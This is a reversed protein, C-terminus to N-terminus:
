VAEAAAEPSPAEPSPTEAHVLVLTRHDRRIWRAAVRQLDDVTVARLAELRAFAGTPDGLVADYFGLQEARGGVTELGRLFALEMRSVSRDREDVTIPHTLLADLGRDLADLLTEASVGSRATCALEWLGPDRFTSAWGSIDTAIEQDTVLARYFRASRGGILSEALVSLAAHDPDGLGPCKYGLAIKDTPTPRTLAVRREGDQPPEAPADELPLRAATLDGYHRQILRLARAPDVDGVLVLTANNPAYWTRYFARCDEPTFALIDQMWGITSHHYPHVTYATAWLTESVTGEVDDDVRYRRENAVVEKESAVPGQRLVLNAMRESELRAVLPLQDAPINEYYFTWDNWTAANTEAGARELLKDFKGAPLSKTENFMLHEFLHALGTKGEREHRSGVRFWTNYSVVPARHDELILVRLGNGLAFELVEEAGFAHRAVFRLRAKRRTGVTANLRTVMPTCPDRAPDADRRLPSSAETM